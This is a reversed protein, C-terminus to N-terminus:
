EPGRCPLSRRVQASPHLQTQVWTATWIRAGQVTVHHGDPLDIEPLWNRSDILLCDSRLAAQRLPELAAEQYWSQFQHSEPMLIWRVKVGAARARETAEELALLAPGGIQLRALTAGYEREAQATHRIREAQSFETQQMRVWGYADGVRSWDQRQHAPLWRPVWRSLLPVKLGHAPCFVTWWYDRPVAGQLIQYRAALSLEEPQWRHLPFFSQERPPGGDTHFLAPLVELWLEDVPIGSQLLRELYVRNTVPGAGPTSFNFVIRPPSAVGSSDFARLSETALRGDLAFGTRSSGLLIVFRAQPEAQRWRQLQRAKDGYLPDRWTPDIRSALHWACQLAVFLGVFAFLGRQARRTRM